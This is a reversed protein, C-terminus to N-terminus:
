LLDVLEDDTQDPHEQIVQYLRKVLEEDEELIEAIEETTQGKTLKKRVQSMLKLMSGREEKKDWEEGFLTRLADCMNRGEEFEELNAQFIFNMVAEYLPDKRNHKYVMALPELDEKVELGKRLRGLWIYEKKSLQETVLIQVPFMLDKIYYIGKYVNEIGVKYHKRLYFMLERPYHSCVLTITVDEPLIEMVKKTDAQYVCAYGMVKFFDNISIYDEPSKYEVINYQRFIKGISKRVVYGAKKKVVLTDIQLPKKSLNYEEEFTLFARDEKLEVQLAAQFAPHWQLLKKKMRHEGKLIILFGIFKLLESDNEVEKRKCKMESKRVSDTTVTSQM